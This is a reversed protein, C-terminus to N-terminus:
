VLSSLFSGVCRRRSSVVEVPLSSLVLLVGSSAAVTCKLAYMRFIVSICRWVM